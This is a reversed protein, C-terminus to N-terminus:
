GENGGAETGTLMFVTDLTIKRAADAVEDFTVANFEAAREEPTKLKEDLLQASYWACIDDPSDGYARLTENLSLLSAKLTEEKFDGSKMADLQELIANRAKEENKTEIGSQVIMIGKERILRSSCYYCLSMKERVNLFLKSYIGGGFIDSMVTMASTYDEKAGMGTRFGMVLKGQKVPQEESFYNVKEAKKIFKTTIKSPSREIGTFRDVLMKEIEATDSSGVAVIRIVATKLVSQWADYVREPTLSEIEALTGYRNKGFAEEGCMLEVCKQQAYIRKDDLESMMREALLRKEIDVDAKTFMGNELKPDFFLDFLLGVAAEAVSGGDLAFRDDIAGVSMKILQAEGLKEVGAQLTAGYLEDLYGNLSTFDPYKRCSRRLIFPLVAKAAIDGDLPMAMTIHAKGTKFRNATVFCVDAGEAIRVQKVENM